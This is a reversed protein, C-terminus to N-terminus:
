CSSYIDSHIYSYIYMCIYKLIHEGWKLFVHLIIKIGDMGNHRQMEIFHIIM